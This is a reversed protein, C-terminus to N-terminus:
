WKIFKHTRMAGSSKIVVLYSGQPQAALSVKAANGAAAAKGVAVGGFNFITIEAGEPLNECVLAQEGAVNNVNDGNSLFKGNSLNEIRYITMSSQELGDACVSSALMCAILAFAFRFLKTFRKM